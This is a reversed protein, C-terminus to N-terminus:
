VALDQSLLWMLAPLRRLQLLLEERKKSYKARAAGADILVPFPGANVCYRPAPKCTNLRVHRDAVDLAIMSMDSVGPLTCKLEVSTYRGNADKQYQLRHDPIIVEEKPPEQNQPVQNMPEEKDPEVRSSASLNGEKAGFEQGSFVASDDKGVGAESKADESAKEQKGTKAQSTMGGGGELGRRELVDQYAAQLAQFAETSGGRDPHLL